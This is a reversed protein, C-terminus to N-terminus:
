LATAGDFGFMVITKGQCETLPNKSGMGGKGSQHSSRGQAACIEGYISHRRSREPLLLRLRRQSRGHLPEARVHMGAHLARFSIGLGELLLELSDAGLDLEGSYSFVSCVFVAATEAATKERKKWGRSTSCLCPM